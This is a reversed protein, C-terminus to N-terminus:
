PTKKEKLTKILKHKVDSIGKEREEKEPPLQLL